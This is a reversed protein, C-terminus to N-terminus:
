LYCLPLSSAQLDRLRLLVSHTQSPQVSHTQSPQSKPLHYSKYVDTREGSKNFCSETAQFSNSFRYFVILSLWHNVLLCHYLSITFSKRAKENVARCTCLACALQEQESLVLDFGAGKQCLKSLDGMAPTISSRSVLSIRTPKINDIHKKKEYSVRSARSHMNTM